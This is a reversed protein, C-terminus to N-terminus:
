KIEAFILLVIQKQKKGSRWANLTTSLYLVVYKSQSVVLCQFM